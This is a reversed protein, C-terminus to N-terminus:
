IKNHITAGVAVVEDANIKMNLKKGKFFKSVMEQIKPIRSSGGVM